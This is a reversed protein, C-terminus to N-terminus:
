CGAAFLNLFEFFDAGTLVGDPTGPNAPSSFDVSLDGAGFRSLFEFFDAGTLVGDPIGPNAPSSLDALSCASGGVAIEVSYFHETDDAISSTGATDVQATFYVTIFGGDRESIALSDLGTIDSLTANGDPVGDGDIDVSQGVIAAVEGNVIVAEGGAVGDTADWIVAWDGDENIDVVDITSDYFGLSGDPLTVEDGESAIIVGNLMIIERNSTNGTFIWDGAENVGFDDFAAFTEGGLGGASAPIVSGSRIPTAGITLIQGNLFLGRDSASGLSVGNIWNTGNNSIKFLFSVDTAPDSVGGLIDGQQYVIEIDGGIGQRFLARAATSGGATFTYGGVWWAEGGATTTPRSNFSSFSGAPAGPIGALPQVESLVLTDGIFVADLGTGLFTDSGSPSYAVTGDNAVGFFTEFSTQTFTGITAEVQLLSIPAVGDASGAFASISGDLTLGVAYGGVANAAVNNVATIISGDIADGEAIISTQASALGCSAVLAAIAFRHM